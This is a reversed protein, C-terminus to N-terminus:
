IEKSEEIADDIGFGASIEALIIRKALAPSFEAALDPEVGGALESVGAGVVEDAIVGRAEESHLRPISPRARSSESFCGAARDQGEGEHVAMPRLNSGCDHAFLASQTRHVLM